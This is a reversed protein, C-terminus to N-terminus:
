RSSRAMELAFWPLNRRLEKCLRAIAQGQQPTLERGIVMSITRALIQHIAVADEPYPMGFVAPLM